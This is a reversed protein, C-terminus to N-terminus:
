SVRWAITGEPDYVCVHGTHVAREFHRALEPHLPRLRTVTGHLRMYVAKRAREAMGNVLRARGGLGVAHALEAQIAGIEDHLRASRGVDNLREAEALEERLEVLRQRYEGRARADLVPEPAARRASRHMRKGAGDSGAQADSVLMLDLATLARGPERVLEALCFLGKSSQMRVERGAFRVVWTEGENALAAEGAGAEVGAVAPTPRIADAGPAVGNRAGLLEEARAVVLALGHMEGDKRAEDVLARARADGSSRALLFRAYELRSHARCPVAGMAGELALAREFLRRAERPRGLRNALRALSRDAAGFFLVGGVVVNRGSYPLLLDYLLRARARDKTRECVEALLHLTMMRFGDRPLDRLVGAAVATLEVQAEELRGDEALAWALGARFAPVNAFTVAQTRLFPLMEGLRAQERRVVGLQGAYISLADPAGSAQALALAENALRECEGLRGALFAQCARPYMAALRHRPQRLERALVELRELSRTFGAGEGLELLENTAAPCGVGVELWRAEGTFAATGFESNQNLRVTFLGDDIAVNNVTQASGVQGGGILRDWLSLRLDCTENILVDEKSLQGQYTFGTGLTAAGASAALFPLPLAPLLLGRRLEGTTRVYM